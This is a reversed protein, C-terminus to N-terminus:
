TQRMDALALYAARRNPTLSLVADETWGYAVALARVERLVAVARAELEAWLLEPVDLATPSDHGCEPCHVLLDVAGGPAVDEM